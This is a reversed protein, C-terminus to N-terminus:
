NLSMSRKGVKLSVIGEVDRAPSPVKSQKRSILWQFKKNEVTHSLVFSIILNKINEDLSLSLSRQNKQTLDNLDKENVSYHKFSM